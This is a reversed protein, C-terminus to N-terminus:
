NSLVLYILSLHRNFIFFVINIIIAKINKNIATAEKAEHLPVVVSGVSDDDSSDEERSVVVRWVVVVVSRTVVVWGGSVSGGTKKM